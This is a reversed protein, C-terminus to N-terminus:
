SKSSVKKYKRKTTFKVKSYIDSQEYMIREVETVDKHSIKFEKDSLNSLEM